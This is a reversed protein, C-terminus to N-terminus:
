WPTHATRPYVVDDEATYISEEEQGKIKLRLIILPGERFVPQHRSYM